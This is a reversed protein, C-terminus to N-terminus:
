LMSVFMNCFGDNYYSRLSLSERIDIDEELDRGLAIDKMLQFCSARLSSRVKRFAAIRIWDLINQVLIQAILYSKGAGAWWKLFVYRIEPNYLADTFESYWDVYLSENTFDIIKKQM